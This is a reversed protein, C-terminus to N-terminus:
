VGQNIDTLLLGDCLRSSIIPVDTTVSSISGPPTSLVGETYKLCGQNLDRCQPDDIRELINRPIGCGKWTFKPIKGSILSSKTCIRRIESCMVHLFGDIIETVPASM